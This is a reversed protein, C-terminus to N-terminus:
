QPSIPSNVQAYIEVQQPRSRPCLGLILLFFLMACSATYSMPNIIGEDDIINEFCLKSIKIIELTFLVCYYFHSCVPNVSTGLKGM